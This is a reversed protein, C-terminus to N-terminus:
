CSIDYEQISKKKDKEASQVELRRLEDIVKNCESIIHYRDFVIVNYSYYQLTAKIYAPWMDMAIAKIPAKVQKLKKFFPSLSSAKRDESVWVITGSELDVVVTLYSHGKRVAIEDVGLCQLHKLRRKKFRKKLAWVHIDRVTNWNMGLHNAVDKITAYELLELVYRGLSKTWHKKPFAFPIPELKLSGCSRCYLRHVRLLLSVARSGIPVTKFERRTYGKKIVEKSGCDKCLRKSPNREIHFIIRGGKYETRKYIYGSIGFGHFLLSTSM